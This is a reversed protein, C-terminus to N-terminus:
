KGGVATRVRNKYSAFAIPNEVAKKALAKEFSMDHAAAYQEVEDQFSDTVEADIRHTAGISQTIGIEVGKGNLAKYTAVMREVAKSGSEEEIAALEAGLEEPKGPIAGWDQAMRTYTMVRKEHETNKVHESLVGIQEDKASLQAELAAIRAEMDPPTADDSMPMEPMMGDEEPAPEGKLAMIAALVDDITASEDLGLAEYLRPLDETALVFENMVEEMNFEPNPEVPAEAEESQKAPQVGGKNTLNPWNGTREKTLIACLVLKESGEIGLDLGMLRGFYEDNAEGGMELLAGKLEDPLQFGKIKLKTMGEMGMRGGMEPSLKAVTELPLNLTSNAHSEVIATWDAASFASFKKGTVESMKRRVESWFARLLRAGKKGKIIEEMKSSIDAFELALEEPSVQTPEGEQFSLTIWPKTANAFINASSLSKLSDVAPLEAGLIAVGSLHPDSEDPMDIEVSVANYFGSEMMSTLVDPVNEFDAVLTSGEKHVNSIYGLRAAGNGEDGTLLGNPIGLEDAIRENFSDDTHGVKVPLPSTKSDNAFNKLLKDLDAETWEREQGQSDTWTGSAFIEVGEVTKYDHQEPM